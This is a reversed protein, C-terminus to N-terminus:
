RGELARASTLPMQLVMAKEAPALGKAEEVDQRARVEVAADNRARVARRLCRSTSLYQLIWRRMQAM